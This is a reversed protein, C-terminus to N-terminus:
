SLPNLLGNAQSKQGVLYGVLSWNYWVKQRLESRQLNGSAQFFLSCLTVFKYWYLRFVLIVYAGILGLCGANSAAAALKAGSVWVMGAQVVPVDIGLLKTIRNQPWSINNQKM